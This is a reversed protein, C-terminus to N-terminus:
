KNIKKLYNKISSISETTLAPKNPPWKGVLFNLWPVNCLEHENDEMTKNLRDELQSRNLQRHCPSKSHFKTTILHLLSFNFNIPELFKVLSCYHQFVM